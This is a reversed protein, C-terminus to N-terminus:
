PGQLQELRARMSDAQPGPPTLKLARQYANRAAERRGLRESTVGLGRYAAANRPDRQSARQYLDAARALHGQVLESAAQKILEDASPEAPRV